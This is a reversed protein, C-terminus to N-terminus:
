KDLFRMKEKEKEKKHPATPKPKEYANDLKNIMKTKCETCFRGTRIMKGCNDCKIGIGSEQSFALREERIWKKIQPISVKCNKAVDNIKANPNERIYNKTIIFKNELKKM